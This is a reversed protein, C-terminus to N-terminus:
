YALFVSLYFDTFHNDHSQSCLFHLSSDSHAHRTFNYKSTANAGEILISKGDKLASNSYEITDM